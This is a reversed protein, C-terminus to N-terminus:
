GTLHKRSRLAVEVRVDRVSEPNGVSVDFGVVWRGMVQARGIALILM